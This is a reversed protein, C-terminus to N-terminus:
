VFQLRRGILKTQYRRAEALRAITLRRDWFLTHINSYYDGWTDDWILAQKNWKTNQLKFKIIIDSAKRCIIGKFPSTPQYLCKDKTHKAIKKNQTNNSWGSITTNPSLTRKETLQGALGLRRVLIWDMLNDIRRKDLVTSHEWHIWCFKGHLGSNKTTLLAALFCGHYSGLYLALGKM